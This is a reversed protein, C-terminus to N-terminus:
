VNPEVARLTIKGGKYYRKGDISKLGFIANLDTVVRLTRVSVNGTNPDTYRGTAQLAKLANYDATATTEDYPMLSFTVVDRIRQVAHETGDMTTIKKVEEVLKKVEYTSVRASFNRNNFTLTIDM